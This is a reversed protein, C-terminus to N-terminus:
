PVQELEAHRPANWETRAFLEDSLIRELIARQGSKSFVHDASDIIHVRCREGLRKVSLGGLITLLKIGPEGRAFVFVVQVGRKAIQELDWGLDRPLHIRLYRALDRVTSELALLTRQFYIRLVYRINVQGSTLRRWNAASFMRARYVGPNRILEAMQIDNVTMGEHWFYNEPNVMLIRNVPVAAIAARMAHYAGSCVGALTIDSAGYRSRMFEIAARIDDVAAPPFIENDPRGPRTGSDGLGALDMRLVVYGRRAWRRAFGVYMGSAGIHYDAGANLLIVARRRKEGQRPETVIGFILAESGIFVPREILQAHEAPGGDRLNMVTIPPVLDSNCHRGGGGNAQALPGLPLQLLWERMAAVMEQPITAYQPATMIMEVLGPLNLYKARVGLGSLQEAWGRAAPMSSGDIVLMDSVPPVERLNLDILALASLTAASFSFGAVEMSGASTAPMDAAVVSPSEEIESGISAALRTTRLERLYRRGSIIPAVLILGTVAKCQSAALMALLAGLRFGLLHVQEVGTLRQLEAVAAIVDKSWVELQDAQPDIESSDGAGMYDFRLTPVGLSAAAEAFARV